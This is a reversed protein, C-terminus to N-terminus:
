ASDLHIPHFYGNSESLTTWLQWVLSIEKRDSGTQDRFNLSQSLIRLIKSM